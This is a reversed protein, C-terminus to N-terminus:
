DQDDDVNRRRVAGEVEKIGSRGAELVIQQLEEVSLENLPRDHDGRANPGADHGAMQLSFRAAQFRVPAPTDESDMLDELTRLAKNAVRGTIQREREKQLAAKVHRQRTLERVGQAPDKYNYGAAELARRGDGGNQVYAHVFREQKETLGTAPQFKGGRGNRIVGEKAAVGGGAGAKGKQM